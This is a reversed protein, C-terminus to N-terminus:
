FLLISANLTSLSLVFAYGSVLAERVRYFLNKLFAIVMTSCATLFLFIDKLFKRGLFYLHFDPSKFM